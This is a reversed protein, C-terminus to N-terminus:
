FLFRRASTNWRFALAFITSSTDILGQADKESRLTMEADIFVNHKWMYSARLFALSLDTENGQLHENGYDINNGEIDTRRFIQSKLIDRGFNQNGIDNGYTAVMLVGELKWRDNMQWTARGLYETFNAGLPHALALNYHSYNTFGDDHAYTYPRVRNLEGQLLLGDVGFANAYKGGLQYGQKNGWWGSGSFAEGFILEDVVVQGYLSFRNQINWKFDFGLISNFASGNQQEIARYFIIPNMYEMRIGGTSDGYIVSEFLGVSFNDRLKINLHHFAMYKTTFQGIGLLGFSGGQLDSILEAFINTYDFVKTNTNIRLYPYRNSYDSLQLSRIGNGIFHRGYGIQASINKTFGFDVYGEARLFDLGTDEYQKWFGDYPVALTSDTVQQVYGPYRMQNESLLTYFSVKKNLTGRVEFGRSYYFPRGADEENTYGSGIHMVPNMHLDLDEDAYRFFDSQYLYLKKLFPKNSKTSDLTIEPTERKWYDSYETGIFKYVQARSFPKVGTQYNLDSLIDQSEMWDYVPHGLPFDTSQGNARVVVILLFM